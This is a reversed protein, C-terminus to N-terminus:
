CNILKYSVQRKAFIKVFSVNLTIEDDFFFNKKSSENNSDNENEIIKKLRKQRKQSCVQDMELEHIQKSFKKSKKWLKMTRNENLRLFIRSWIFATTSRTNRTAYALVIRSSAIRSNSFKKSEKQDIMNEDQMKEQLTVFAKYTTRKTM